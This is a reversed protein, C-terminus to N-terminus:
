ERQKRRKSELFEQNVTASKNRKTDFNIEVIRHKPEQDALPPLSMYDGYNKTLVDDYDKPVPFQYGEFEWNISHDFVEKKLVYDKYMEKSTSIGLEGVYESDSGQFWCMWKTIIHDIPRKPVVKLVYYMGKKAARVLPNPEYDNILMIRFENIRKLRDIVIRQLEGKATGPKVDDYPFVDIYVGHHMDVDRLLQEVYRTNNKRIKAYHSRYQKDTEYTQLFYHSDLADQAVELFRDYDKRLMCVDVDDDWPIFGKHRIAGILTGAFLQYPIDHEKCVRDFELLIELEVKQAEKIEIELGPFKQGEENM